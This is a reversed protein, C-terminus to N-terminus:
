LIHYYPKFKRVFKKEKVCAECVAKYHRITVTCGIYQLIKQPDIIEYEDFWIATHCGFSIM